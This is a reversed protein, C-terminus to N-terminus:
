RSPHIRVVKGDDQPSPAPSPPGPDLGEWLRVTGDLSASYIRLGPASVLAHVARSHGALTITERGTVADWVLLTGEGGGTVVRQGNQAFALSWVASPTSWRSLLSGSSADWVAVTGGSGVTSGGGAALRTGDPSFAVDSTIAGLSLPGLVRWGGQVKWVFVSGDGGAVAVRRGDPAVTLAKLTGAQGDIAQTRRGTDVDWFLIKGDAGASVLTRGDPLFAVDEIAGDHDPEGNPGTLVLPGPGAGDRDWLRAKGDVGATAIRDPRAPPGYALATVESTQGALQRIPERRRPDCVVVRMDNAAWALLSGDARVSLAGIEADPESVINPEPERALVTAIRAVEVRDGSAIALRRGDPRFALGQLAATLGVRISDIRRRVDLDWLDTKGITASSTASSFAILHGVPSCEAQASNTNGSGGEPRFPNLTLTSTDWVRIAQTALTVLWRDDGSLSLSFVSSSQPLREPEQRPKAGEIDWVTVGYATNQSATYMRAGDRSIRIRNGHRFTWTDYDPSPSPPDVFWQEGGSKIDWLAIRDGVDTAVVVAQGYPHFVLSYVKRNICLMRRFSGTAVDWLRVSGDSSGSALLQGDPRFALTNVSATHGTLVHLMVKQEPDWLRLTGDVGGTALLRGDPSYAVSLVNGKHGALTTLRPDCLKWLYYWEFGRYVSLHSPPDYYKKLKERARYVDGSDWAQSALNMDAAYSDRYSLDLAHELDRNIWVGGIVLGLLSLILAVSVAALAKRRKAWKWGREWANVPRATIPLGDFWRELDEAVAEASGYRRTPEKELCKLCITELDRNLKANLARPRPPEEDLVRRLIEAASGGAFPPQGTLAEYLTAGLSYVDAATTLTRVQGRAQEPPMYAPTGMVAGDLTALSSDRQEIRKALGFDTVFPEGQEDLLINSSKIDRHLITRQHAFHVARAVKAMLGAAARPNGKLRATQTLLNGGSFLKMSFFPQDDSQGVEYIPVIHPHDLQAIVEAESRFRRLEALSAGGADRIVKLAVLRDLKGQRARYVIAMGGRGIEDLLEYDGLFRPPKAPEISAPSNSRPADVTAQDVSAEIVFGTDTGPDDGKLVTAGDAGTEERPTGRRGASEPPTEADEPVHENM